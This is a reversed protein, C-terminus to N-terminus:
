VYCNVGFQLTQVSGVTFSIELNRALVRKRIKKKVVVYFVNVVMTWAEKKVRLRVM